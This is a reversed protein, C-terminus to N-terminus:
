ICDYIVEEQSNIMDLWEEFSIEDEETFSIGTEYRQLKLYQDRMDAWVEDDRELMFDLM